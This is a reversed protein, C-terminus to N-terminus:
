TRKEVVDIMDYIPKTQVTDRLFLGLFDRLCSTGPDKNSRYMCKFLVM